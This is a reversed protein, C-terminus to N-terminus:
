GLRDRLRSLVYEAQEMDLIDGQEDLLAVKTFQEDARRIEALYTGSYDTVENGRWFALRGLGTRPTEIPEHTFRFRYRRESEDIERVSMGARNLTFGLRRWVSDPEDQVELYLGTEGFRIQSRSREAEASPQVRPPRAENGQAALEPLFYGPVEYTSRVRPQSLGPPAEIPQVEESDAYVPQERTACAALVAVMALVLMSKTMLNIIRNM